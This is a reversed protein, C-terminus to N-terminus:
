RVLGHVIVTQWGRENPTMLTYSLTTLMTGTVKEFPHHDYEDLQIYPTPNNPYFSPHIAPLFPHPLSPLQLPM